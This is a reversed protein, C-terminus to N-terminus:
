ESNPPPHPSMEIKPRVEATYERANHKTSFPTELGDRLSLLGWRSPVRALRWTERLPDELGAESPDEPGADSTTALAGLLKNKRDGMQSLILVDRKEKKAQKRRPGGCGDM